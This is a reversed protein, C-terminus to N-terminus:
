SALNKAMRTEEEKALKRDHEKALKRDHEKAELRNVLNPGGLGMKLFIRLDLDGDILCDEVIDIVDLMYNLAKEKAEIPQDELANKSYLAAIISNLINVRRYVDHISISEEIQGLLIPNSIAYRYIDTNIGNKVYTLMWDVAEVHSNKAIEKKKEDEEEGLEIELVMDLDTYIRSLEAYIQERLLTISRANQFMYSFSASFFGLIPGIVILIDKYYPPFINLGILVAFAIYFILTAGVM